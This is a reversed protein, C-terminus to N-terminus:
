RSVVVAKKFRKVQGSSHFLEAWVIYIGAPLQRNYEGLGDWSFSGAEACYANRQLYRVPQGAADFVVISAVYGPEPLRYRIVAFDDQGDQNPSILAPTLEWEAAAPEPNRYQSNRATPTGYRMSGAASQWNASSRTADYPDVRELAVGERNSILAFHWQERYALEDLVTGAANLLVANGKDDPWSPLSSLPLVADPHLPQYAEKVWDPNETLVVYQGPLLLWPSDSCRVLSSLSGAANRNTISLQQLDFLKRSCNYLELYDAGNAPPNFLIENLVVEAPGAMDPLGAVVAEPHNRINGACDQLHSVKVSYLIGPALPNAFRLLIRNRAPEEVTASLLAGIAPEISYLGPDAQAEPNLAESAVLVLRFSDPAFARLLRPASEDPLSGNVSNQRGPTGGSPDEASRWNEAGGCTNLPDIIELSWGGQQKVTNRHWAPQYGVAHMLKGSGDQLYLWEGENSLSPFDPLRMLATGAPHWGACNNGCLILYAGAPLLQEPFPRSLGSGDGLRWGRLNVPFASNNKLELWECEPLGAPPSPDAMIESILVEGYRPRYYVFRIQTDRLANQQLDQLGRVLLSLETGPPLAAAFRLQVRRLDTADLWASDPQPAPLLGQYHERIRVSGADLAESFTLGLLNSDIVVHQLLRPPLTDPIYRDVTFSDFYHRQAFGATSSQKVLIGFFAAVTWTHDTARGELFDATESGSLDRYLSWVGAEDRTVRIRIRSSSANTSGDAGDIIKVISSGSKRYLAIEDNSNGIRVFYGNNTAAQLSSDTATLFVDVYNASSTNFDLRMWWAWSTQEVAHSATVIQFSSNATNSASQLQGDANVRWQGAAAHWVPQYEYDGDSFDDAWQARATGSLLLIILWGTRTMM